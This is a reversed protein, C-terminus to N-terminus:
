LTMSIKLALFVLFTNYSSIWILYMKIDLNSETTMKNVRKQRFYKQEKDWFKGKQKLTEFIQFFQSRKESKKSKQVLIKVKQCTMPSIQSKNWSNSMKHLYFISRKRLVQRWRLNKSKEEFNVKKIELKQRKIESNQSKNYKM